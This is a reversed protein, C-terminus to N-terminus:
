CRCLECWAANTSGDVSASRRWLERELIGMGLRILELVSRRYTGTKEILEYVSVFGSVVLACVCVCVCVDVIGIRIIEARGRMVQVGCKKVCVCVCLM